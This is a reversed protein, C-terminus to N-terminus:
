MVKDYFPVKMKGLFANDMWNSLEGAKNHSITHDNNYSRLFAENQNVAFPHTRDVFEVVGKRRGHWTKGSMMDREQKERLLQPGAGEERQVRESGTFTYVTSVHSLPDYVARQAGPVNASHPAWGGTRSLADFKLPNRRYPKTGPPPVFTSIHDSPIRASSRTASASRSSAAAALDKPRPLQKPLPLPPKQLPVASFDRKCWDMHLADSM